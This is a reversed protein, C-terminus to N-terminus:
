LLLNSLAYPLLAVHHVWLTCALILVSSSLNVSIFLLLLHVRCIFAVFLHLLESHTVEFYAPMNIILTVQSVASTLVSQGEKKNRFVPSLIGM